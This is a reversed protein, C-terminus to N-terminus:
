PQANGEIVVPGGIDEAGVADVFAEIVATSLATNSIFRLDGGIREVMPLDWEVLALNDHVNVHRRIVRAQGLHVAELKRNAEIELTPLDLLVPLDLSRLGSEQIHLLPERVYRLAPLDIHELRDNFSVWFGGVVELRPVEYRDLRENGTLKHLGGVRVLNPMSQAQLLINLRLYLNRGITELSPLTITWRNAEDALDYGLANQYIWLDSGVFTLADLEIARLVPNFEVALDGGVFQLAPFSIEALNPLAEVRLAGGVRVVSAWRLSEIDPDDAVILDGGVEDLCHLVDVTAEGGGIVQLDGALVTTRACLAEAEAVSTIVADEPILLCLRGDGRVWGDPCPGPDAACGVVVLLVAQWPGWERM